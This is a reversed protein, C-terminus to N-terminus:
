AAPISQAFHFVGDPDYTAKVQMLRSLNDGYYADQWDALDPDIYNQYAFGSAYPRLSAHYGRLWSLNSDVVGAPAGLAWPAVYQASFLADRHVFATAGAPVRNIAGGSADLAVGGGALGSSQREDIGHLMANVGAPSLPGNFFDSKAAYAERGLTGGPNQTPLHCQAVSKGSCGAEVLMADFLSHTTVFTSSPAAGVDSVLRQLLPALGAQTGVFAAGVSVTPGPSGTLLHCNSWLEDPAGPAWGQWAGVVDAAASWPWHYFAVTLEALPHAQFGFSTVIGFNGGGGGRCAWYLDPHETESCALASGDATVIHVSRVSDCTLGFKRGIVGIGGGLALGSIGVTPCSGGPLALGAQALTAYVDILRAGAAITATGAGPDARVAFMRTVDCVLGTVTSYGGYSHGGGRPVMHIAHGRAFAVAAQVDSVSECFAIGAPRVADFRQNYLQAAGAYAGAGPRVLSGDLSRGFAAWDAETAPAPGSAGPSGTPSPGRTARVSPSGSHCAAALPSLAASALVVRGGLRLFARRDVRRVPEVALHDPSGHRLRADVAPAAAGVGIRDAGM